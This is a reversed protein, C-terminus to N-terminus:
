TSYKLGFERELLSFWTYLQPLSMGGKQLQKELTQSPATVACAIFTKITTEGEVWFPFIRCILPRVSKPLMCGNPTLFICHKREGRVALRWRTAHLPFVEEINIANPFLARVDKTFQETVIEEVFHCEVNEVGLYCTIRRIDDHTIPLFRDVTTDNGFFCCTTGLRGCAACEPTYEKQHQMIARTYITHAFVIGM